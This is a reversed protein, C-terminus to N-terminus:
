WFFHWFYQCYTVALPSAMRGYLIHSNRYFQDFLMLKNKNYEIGEFQNLMTNIKNAALDRFQEFIKSNYIEEPIEETEKDEPLITFIEISYKM